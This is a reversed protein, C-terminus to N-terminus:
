AARARKAPSKRPERRMVEAVTTLAAAVHERRAEDAARYDDRCDASCFTLCHFVFLGQAGPEAGGCQECYVLLERRMATESDARM